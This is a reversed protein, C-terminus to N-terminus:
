ICFLQYKKVIQTHLITLAYILIQKYSKHYPISKLFNKNYLSCLIIKKKQILTPSSM